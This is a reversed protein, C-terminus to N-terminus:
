DKMTALLDRVQQAAAPGKLAGRWIFESVRQHTTLADEACSVMAIGSQADPASDSAFPNITLAARERGRLLMFPGNPVSHTMLGLQLGIPEREMLTAIQEVEHAAAKRALSRLREPVQLSSAIGNTLFQQLAAMTLVCIISPRRTQYMQKRTLMVDQLQESAAHLLPADDGQTSAWTQLMQGLTADYHESTILYCIPGFFQLIQDSTEELQRLREAYGIPKTYYEVGIGLLTLPSIKLLEALRNVTDLKIVEGKEYRYLAARSVGLRAAIEEAKLGSELRYARLQQGIEKFHM